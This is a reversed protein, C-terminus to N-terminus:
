LLSSVEDAHLERHEGPLLNALKIPGIQHRHLDTVVWGQHHFMRKVQHHKGEYITLDAALPHIITLDAPLTKKGDLMVGKKFTDILAETLPKDVSVRYVKQIHHQPSTIHHTWNGDDTLLLLGTTDKDLRGVIHLDRHEYGHILEMVTKDKHDHTASVYGKPKHLMVYVYAQYLVKTEGVYIADQHEDVVHDDHNIMEGNVFVHGKRILKKVQQRSGVGAHALLKDLRM